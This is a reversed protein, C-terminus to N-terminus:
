EQDVGELKQYVGHKYFLDKVTDTPM